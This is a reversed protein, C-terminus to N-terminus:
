KILHMSVCRMETYGPCQSMLWSSVADKNRSNGIWQIFGGQFNKSEVTVEIPFQKVHQKNRGEVRLTYREM